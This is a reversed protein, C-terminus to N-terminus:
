WSDLKTPWLCALYGFTGCHSRTNVACPPIEFSCYDSSHPPSLHCLLLLGHVEDPWFLPLVSVVSLLSRWPDQLFSIPRLRSPVRLSDGCSLSSLPYCWSQLLLFSDSHCAGSLLLPQSCYFKHVSFTTKVQKIEVQILGLCSLVTCANFGIETMVKPKPSWNSGPCYLLQVNQM